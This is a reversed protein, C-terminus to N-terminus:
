MLISIIKKGISNIYIQIPFDLANLFNQYELIIATQEDQSKLSFNLSSVNLVMRMAGGRLFVVGDRLSEIKVFSQTSPQSLAM